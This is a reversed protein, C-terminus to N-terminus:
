SEDDTVVEYVSPAIWRDNPRRLPTTLAENPRPHRETARLASGLLIALREPADIITLTRRNLSFSIMFYRAKAEAPVSAFVLRPAKM